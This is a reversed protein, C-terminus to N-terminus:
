QKVVLAKKIAYGKIILSFLEEVYDKIAAQSSPEEPIRQCNEVLKEFLEEADPRSIKIAICRHKGPNGIIHEMLATITKDNITFGIKRNPKRIVVAKNKKHYLFSILAMPNNEIHLIYFIEAM